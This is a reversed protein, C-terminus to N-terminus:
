EVGLRAKMARVIEAPFITVRSVAGPTVPTTMLEENFRMEESGDPYTFLSVETIHAGAHQNIANVAFLAFPQSRAFENM